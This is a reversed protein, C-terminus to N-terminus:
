SIVAGFYVGLDPAVIKNAFAIDSEIATARREEIRYERTAIGAGLGESIGTWQFIYGATATEIAPTPTTHVLLAGKGLIPSISAAAGEEATNKAASAVLVREIGILDAIAQQTMQVTTGEARGSWKVLDIVEPHRRLVAWAQRGLVLTNAELGTGAIYEKAVEFDDLPNSNAADWQLFSTGATPASTVGTLDHSWKGTGFFDTAFQSELRTRLKQTVVRIANQRPELPSDYNALVQDSILRKAAYQHTSYSDKSLKASVEAAPALEARLEAEDRLLDDKDFVWYFDSKKSVPVIPFVKDAVYRSDDQFYAVSINSLLADVHVDSAFNYGPV